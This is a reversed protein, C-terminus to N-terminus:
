YQQSFPTRPLTRAHTSHTTHTRTHSLSVQASFANSIAFWFMTLAYSINKYFFYCVQELGAKAGQTTDEAM